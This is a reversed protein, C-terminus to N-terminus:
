LACRVSKRLAIWRGHRAVVQLASCQDFKAILAADGSSSGEWKRRGGRFSWFLPMRLLAKATYGRGAANLCKVNHQRAATDSAPSVTRAITHRAGPNDYWMTWIRQLPHKAQFDIEIGTPPPELEETKEAVPEIAAEEAQEVPAAEEAVAETEEAPKEAMATEEVNEEAPAADTKEVEAM